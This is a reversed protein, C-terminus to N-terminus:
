DMQNRVFSRIDAAKNRIAKLLRDKTITTRNKVALFKGWDNLDKKRSTSSVFGREYITLMRNRNERNDLAGGKLHTRYLDAWQEEKMKKMFLMEVDFDTSKKEEGLPTTKVKAGLGPPMADKNANMKRIRSVIHPEGGDLVDRVADPYEEFGSDLLLTAWNITVHKNICAMALERHEGRFENITRADDESHTGELVSVILIDDEPYQKWWTSEWLDLVQSDDVGRVIAIAFPEALGSRIYPEAKELLTKKKNTASKNLKKEIESLVTKIQAPKIEGSSTSAVNLGFCGICGMIGNHTRIGHRHHNAGNPQCGGQDVLTASGETGPICRQCVWYNNNQRVPRNQTSTQKCWSCQMHMSGNYRPTVITVTPRADKGLNSIKAIDTESMGFPNSKAIAM